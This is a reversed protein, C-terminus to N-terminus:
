FTNIFNIDGLVLLILNIDSKNSEKRPAMPRKSDNYDM